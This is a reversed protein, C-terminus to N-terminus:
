FLSVQETAKIKIKAAQNKVAEKDNIFNGCYWKKVSEPDIHALNGGILTRTTQWAEKVEMTLTNGHIISGNLNFFMLNLACMRVCNIDLDHGIFIARRNEELSMHKAAAIFFVGAGCTPDYITFNRDKPIDRLTLDCMTEAVSYPTFFQGVRTNAAYEMYLSSLVEEDTIKMHALLYAHAMAFHDAERQGEPAENRYERMIKLYSPDDRM